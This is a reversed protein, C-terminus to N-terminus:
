ISSVYPIHKASSLTGRPGTPNDASQAIEPGVRSNTTPDNRVFELSMRKVKSHM